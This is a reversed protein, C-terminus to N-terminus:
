ESRTGGIRMDAFLEDPKLKGVAPETGEEATKAKGSGPALPGRRFIWGRSKVASM